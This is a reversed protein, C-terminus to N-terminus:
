SEQSQQETDDAEEPEEGSEDGTKQSIKLRLPRGMLEQLLGVMSILSLQSSQKVFATWRHYVELCILMM